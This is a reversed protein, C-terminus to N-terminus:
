TLLIVTRRTVLGLFPSLSVEPPTEPLSEAEPVLITNPCTYSEDTFSGVPSNAEFKSFTKQIDVRLLLIYMLLGLLFLIRCSRTLKRCKDLFLDTNPIRTIFRAQVVKSQIGTYFTNLTCGSVCRSCGKCGWWLM